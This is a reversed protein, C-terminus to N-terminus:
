LFAQAFCCLDLVTLIFIFIFRLFLVPQMIRVPFCLSKLSIMELLLFSDRSNGKILIDDLTEWIAWCYLSQRCCLHHLNLFIRQLLFHCGVGTSKGSIGWSCLLKAELPDCLTPCSQTISCVCRIDDIEKYVLVVHLYFTVLTLYNLILKQQVWSLYLGGSWFVFRTM